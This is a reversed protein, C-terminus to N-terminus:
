PGPRNEAPGTADCRLSNPPTSTAAPTAVNTTPSTADLPTALTRPGASPPMPRTISTAAGPRVRRTPDSVAAPTNMQDASTGVTTLPENVPSLTASIAVSPTTILAPATANTLRFWAATM